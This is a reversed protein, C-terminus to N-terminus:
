DGSLKERAEALRKREARDVKPYELKLSEIAETIVEAVLVHASWKHNSPIVYWPAWDTSTAAIADEYAKQYDDWRAREALDSSSFKWYKDPNELRELFRQKQQSKSIHLFFKLIVVGNRSLHQEFANIDQYREEWLKHGRHKEPIKQKDLWEPHVRVVLVEEYHSRNFIGIRGREPIERAYRWLFPHNVDEASPQKFSTVQCGQPNVGSMVHKITGDKGAADMAQLVILVANRGSAYLLTQAETLRGINEQLLEAGREKLSEEPSHQLSPHLTWDADFHKLRVHSGPKVRIRKLASSSLLSM